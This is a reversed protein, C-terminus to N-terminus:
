NIGFLKKGEAEFKNGPHWWPTKQANAIMVALRAYAQCFRHLYSFNLTNAEDAVQHYYKLLEQDFGSVGPSANIAPIGRSAFSINDSREYLNQQPVPDGGAKMGFAKAAEAVLPEVAVHDFGVVSFLSTDNYGAGDSNLNFITQNLPFLPNEAYYRSGLLGLEEGTLAMFIVSRQPPNMSLAKAATLLATTGIGNDRAGNFITDNATIKGGKKGTGVHDYHASLLVYEKNLTPDSGQIWGIVNQSPMAKHHSASSNLEWKINKAHQLAKGIEAQDDRLWAYPLDTSEGSAVQLRKVKLRGAIYRWPMALRYLEILAVAGQEAALKRKMGIAQYASQPDDADPLGLNVVVIKGKVDLGKYDDRGGQKDVIGYGAFVVGANVSIERGQVMVFDKGQKRTKDDLKLSAEAPPTIEEFAIPQFYGAAGPAEKLGYAEFYSAIYRAAINNGEEGTRRGMLEDSALFRVHAEVENRTIEMGGSGMSKQAHTLGPLLSFLLLLTTFLIRM